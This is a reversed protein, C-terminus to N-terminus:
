PNMAMYLVTWLVICTWAAIGSLYLIKKWLQMARFPVFAVILPIAFFSAMVFCVIFLTSM